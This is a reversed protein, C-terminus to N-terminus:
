PKAIVDQRFKELLRTIVEPNTGPPIVVVRSV